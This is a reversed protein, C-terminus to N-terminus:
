WEDDDSDDDDSDSDWDSDSDSDSDDSWDDDSDLDYDDDYDYGYDDNYRDIFHWKTEILGRPSWDTLADWAGQSLDVHDGFCDECTDKVMVIISRGKGGVPYGKGGLNTVKIRRGCEPGRYKDHMWENSLACVFDSDDHFDGCSGALDDQMENLNWNRHARRSLTSRSKNLPHSTDEERNKGPAAAGLTALLLCSAASLFLAPIM